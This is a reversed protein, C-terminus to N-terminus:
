DVTSKSCCNGTFEKEKEKKGLFQKSEETMNEKSKAYFCFM